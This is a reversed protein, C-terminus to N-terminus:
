AVPEMLDVNYREKAVKRIYAIQGRHLVVGTRACIIEGWRHGRSSRKTNFKCRIPRAFFYAPISKM